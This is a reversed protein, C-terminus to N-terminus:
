HHPVNEEEKDSGILCVEEVFYEQDQVLNSTQMLRQLVAEYSPYKQTLQIVRVSIDIEEMKSYTHRALEQEQLVSKVTERNDIYEQRNNLSIAKDFYSLARYYEGEHYLKFGQQNIAKAENNKYTDLSAKSEEPCEEQAQQYKKIAAAYDKKDYLENGEQNLSKSNSHHMNRKFTDKSKYNDGAKEYAAKFKKSADLYKGQNWLVVGQQNLAEAENNKYIDKPINLYANHYYQIAKEYCCNHYHQNGIENLKRVAEAKKHSLCQKTENDFYMRHWDTDGAVRCGVFLVTGLIPIWNLHKSAGWWYCVEQLGNSPNLVKSDGSSGDINEGKYGQLVNVSIKDINSLEGMSLDFAHQLNGPLEKRFDRLSTSNLYSEAFYSLDTRKEKM